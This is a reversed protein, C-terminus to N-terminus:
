APVEEVPNSVPRSTGPIAYPDIPGVEEPSLKIRGIRNNELGGLYLYGRHESMSTVMPHREGAQDWLVRLIEGSESFKVVCSINWQPVIWDDVPLHKTMRLRFEPHRLVLDSFPTRMGVFSLWYNGDSARNINDPAGPLNELVPELQGQKPGSIWLRDVRFTLTSAILISRGDHSTAIGNAAALKTVVTEVSGNDPDVRLVRGNPRYEAVLSHYNSTDVRTSADSFYISGDPAIDLDDAFRLASDDYLQFRTRPARTAVWEVGRDPNIRCVGIGSVAVVLNKDADWVHGLPTGGTRAYIEAHEYDEGSFKWIWGRRDGCYVSGEDDVVCDEAGEIKGLGIPLADSLADNVAWKSKQDTVDELPGPKYYFPSIALKGALTNRHKGWKLDLAAFVLLLLAMAITEMSGDWGQRFVAQGLLAVILAGTVARIVSGRGGRLSVGGLVVATLAIIEYGSAVNASTSEQRAAMFLGALACLLGSAVYSLFSMANVPIGNRRASRRDSGIATLWWGWKSRTLILHTFVLLLALWFFSTPIGAVRGHGIFIWNIERRPQLLDQSYHGQVLQILARFTLATVLTTIFPRTKIVAILFGNIAGLAMGGLLTTAVVVEVPLEYVRFLVLSGIAGMGMIAGVSLDFGGGILVLTLAIALLGAEAFRSLIISRDGGALIEPTTGVVVLGLVLALVVPVAGEMWPKALLDGVTRKPAFRALSPRGTLSFGDIRRIAM